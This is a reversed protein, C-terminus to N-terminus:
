EMNPFMQPSKQSFMLSAVSKEVAKLMGRGGGVDETATGVGGVNVNPGGLTVGTGGVIKGGGGGLVNDKPLGVNDGTRGVRPGEVGDGGPLVGTNGVSESEIGLVRPTGGVVEGEIQVKENPRVMGVFLRGGVM